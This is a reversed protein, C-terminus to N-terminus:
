GPIHHPQGLYKKICMNSDSNDLRKLFGEQELYISIDLGELYAVVQLEEGQHSVVRCNLVKYLLTSTLEEMLQSLLNSKGSRACRTVVNALTCTVAQPPIDALESLFQYLESILVEESNGYDIFLVKVYGYEGPQIVKARYYFGDRSFPAIVLEGIVPDRTLKKFTSMIEPENLYNAMESIDQFHDLYTPRDHHFLGHFITPYTVHTVKINILMGPKPIYMSPLYFYGDGKKDNTWGNPNIIQHKKTCHMGKFCGGMSQDYFRCISAEDTPEYGMVAMCANTTSENEVQAIDISELAQTISAETEPRGRSSNKENKEISPHSKMQINTVSKCSDPPSNNVSLKETPQMIEDSTPLQNLLTQSEYHKGRTLNKENKEISPHSKMQVDIADTGSQFSDSSFDILPSNEVSQIIEDSTPLQKTLTHSINPSDEEIFALTGISSVDENKYKTEIFSKNHIGPPRMKIIPDLNNKNQSSSSSLLTMCPREKDDFKLRDINIQRLFSIQENIMGAVKYYTDNNLSAGAESLHQVAGAIENFEKVYYSVIENTEKELDELLTKLYSIKGNVSM